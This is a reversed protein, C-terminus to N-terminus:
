KIGDKFWYYLYTWITPHYYQNSILSVGRYERIIDFSGGSLFTDLLELGKGLQLLPYLVFNDTHETVLLSHGIVGGTDVGEDLYHLTVGCLGEEGNVKAWYCGHVGRYSPTIGAHINIFPAASSRLTEKSIIRTGSVVILDALSNMVLRRADLSNVSDVRSIVKEPIARFKLDYKEIIRSKLRASIPTLIIKIYIAFLIQGLTTLFGLKRIRRRLFITRSERKEIIVKVDHHEFLHNYLARTSDGAKGILLITAM